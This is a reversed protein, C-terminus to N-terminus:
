VTAIQKWASGNWFFLAHIDTDYVQLGEAPSAIGTRQATTMRPGLVGRGTSDVQLIASSDPSSAGTDQFYATGAGTGDLRLQTGTVTTGTLNTGVLNGLVLAGANDLILNGTGTTDLTFVAFFDDTTRGLALSPNYSDGHNAGIELSTGIYVDKPRELTVGSDSSGVGLTNDPSFLIGGTMTGGSLPLSAGFNGNAATQVWFKNPGLVLYLWVYSQGAAISTPASPVFVSGGQPSLTLNTIGSLLSSVSLTQGAVPSTPMDLTLNTIPGGSGFLWNTTHAPVSTHEGETMTHVVTGQAVIGGGTIDNNGMNINGSMTGGALPLFPGGGGGGGGGLSSAYTAYFM